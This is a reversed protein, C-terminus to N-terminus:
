PRVVGVFQGGAGRLLMGGGFAQISTIMAGRGAPWDYDILGNLWEIFIAEIEAITDEDAGIFQRRPLNKGRGTGTTAVGVEEMSITQGTRLKHLVNAVEETTTGAQHYPGYFPLVSSNFLIDRETILWAESSTAAAHLSGTRQLIEEPYGAALKYKLYEEDLATWPMGYPDSETEFHLETDYIFAQKAAMLPEAWNETDAALKLLDAEILKPDPSWEAIVFEEGTEGIPFIGAITPPM